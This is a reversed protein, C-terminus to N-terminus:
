LGPVPGCDLHYEHGRGELDSQSVNHLNPECVGLWPKGELKHRLELQEVPPDTLFRRWCRDCLNEWNAKDYPDLGREFCYSKYCDWCANDEDLDDIYQPWDPRLPEDHSGPYERNRCANWCEECFGDFPSGGVYGDPYDLEPRAPDPDDWTPVGPEGWDWYKDHKIPVDGACPDVQEPSPKAGGWYRDDKSPVDGVCPDVQKPVSPEWQDWCTDDPSPACALCHGVERELLLPLQTSQGLGSHFCEAPAQSLPAANLPYGVSGWPSWAGITVTVVVFIAFALWLRETLFRDAVHTRM